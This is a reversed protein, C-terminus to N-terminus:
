KFQILAFVSIIHFSLTTLKFQKWEFWGVTRVTNHLTNVCKSSCKQTNYCDVDLVQCTFVLTFNSFQGLKRRSINHVNLNVLQVCNNVGFTIQRGGFVVSNSISQCQIDMYHHDHRRWAEESSIVDIFLIYSLCVYACVMMILLSDNYNDNSGVAIAFLNSSHVYLKRSLMFLYIAQTRVNFIICLFEHILHKRKALPEAAM